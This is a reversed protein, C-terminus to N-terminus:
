SFNPNGRHKASPATETYFYSDAGSHASINHVLPRNNRSLASQCVSFPDRTKRVSRHLPTSESLISIIPASLLARHSAGAITLLSYVIVPSSITVTFPSKLCKYNYILLFYTNLYPQHNSSSKCSPQTEKSFLKSVTMNSVPSPIM